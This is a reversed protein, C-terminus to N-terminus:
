ACFIVLSQESAITTGADLRDRGYVPLIGAISISPTLEFGKLRTCRFV